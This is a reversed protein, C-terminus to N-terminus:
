EIVFRQDLKLLMEKITLSLKPHIFNPDVELLPLLVFDREHMRPHPVTLNASDIIQDEIALIDIDITRASWKAQIDSNTDRGLAQEIGKIKRLIQEATLSTEVQVVMNLYDAQPTSGPLTLARTKYISSSILIAGIQNTILQQASKLTDAVAGINGGMALYTKAKKYVM